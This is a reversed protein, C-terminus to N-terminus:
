SANTLRRSPSPPTWCRSPRCRSPGRASRRVRRSPTPWRCRPRPKPGGRARSSPRLRLGRRATRTREPTRRQLLRSPPDKRPTSPSSRAGNSRAGVNTSGGISSGVGRAGLDRSNESAYSFMRGFSFQTSLIVSLVMLTLVVIISGTRNLYDAFLAGLWQGISGGADFRRGTAETGGFLLSLLASSCGVLLTAGTLKTYAADFPQCWFFYWGTWAIVGPLLFAGYGLLQFSLEALFAGVRGVFNAPPHLAETTFFWVPDTPEYTVLSILWILALAFFAVGLFESIRRSVTTDAM